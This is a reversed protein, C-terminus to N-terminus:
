PRGHVFEGAGEEEFGGMGKLAIDVSFAAPADVSVAVPGGDGEGTSGVGGGSHEDVDTTQIGDKDGGAIGEIV